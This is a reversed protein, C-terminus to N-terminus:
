VPPDAMGIIRVTLTGLASAGGDTVRYTINHDLFSGPGLNRITPHETNLQYSFSGAVFDFSATAYPTINGSVSSLGLTDGHPDSDNTLVNGSISSQDRNIRLVRPNATVRPNASPSDRVFGETSM